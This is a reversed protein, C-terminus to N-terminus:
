EESEMHEAVKDAIRNMLRIAHLNRERTEDILFNALDELSPGDGLDLYDLIMRASPHALFASRADVQALEDAIAQAVSPMLVTKAHRRVAETIQEATLM